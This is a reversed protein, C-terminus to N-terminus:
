SHKRGAKSGSEPGSLSISRALDPFENIPVDGVFITPAWTVILSGPDVEVDLKKGDYRARIKGGRSVLLARKGNDRLTAWHQAVSKGTEMYIIRDQEEPMKELNKRRAKLVDLRARDAEAPQDLAEALAVKGALDKIADTVEEIEGAHDNGEITRQESYDTEAGHESFWKDIEEELLDRRINRTQCARDRVGICRMYEYTKGKVTQRNSYLPKGCTGCFTVGTLWPSDKRPVKVPVSLGDLRDQVRRWVADDIIPEGFRIPLGDDGRVVEGAVETIGCIARSRLIQQVTWHRWQHGKAEKGVRIRVIDKSTPIQETNLWVAIASPGKGSLIEEVMREVYPAHEDPELEYGKGAGLSVPHYGFPTWGGAYRGVQRLYERASLVRERDNYAEMEAAFTLVQAILEAVPNASSMDLVLAGGSPGSCFVLIKNNERAWRALESMDSMRRVARDLSAWVVLDFESKRYELWDGLEPRAFPSKKYASEDLDKAKGVSHHNYDKIWRGTTAEQRVPSTTPDDKDRYRSLRIAELARAM